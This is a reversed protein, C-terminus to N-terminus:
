KVFLQYSLYSVYADAQPITSSDFINGFAFTYRDKWINFSPFIEGNKVEEIVRAMDFVIGHKVSPNHPLITALFAGWNGGFDVASALKDGAYQSFATLTGHFLHSYQEHIPLTLMAYFDVGFALEISSVGERRTVNSLKNFTSTTEPELFFKVLDCAHLPHNSTLMAGSETLVFYKDDNVQKVIYARIIRCLVDKNWTSSDDTGIMEDLTLGQNPVATAFRDALNLDIFAM